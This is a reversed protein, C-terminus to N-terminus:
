PSAVRRTARRRERPAASEAGPPRAQARAALSPAAARVARPAPERAERRDAPRPARRAVGVGPAGRALWDAVRSFDAFRTVKGPAGLFATVVRRGGVEAGTIYCYGAPTTFGTKGGTVRFRHATLPRNTTHYDIRESRDKSVVTASATGMIERLVRDQLAVRLALALERATSVNGRLGSPDVFRTRKLGLERALRNMAAVLAPPDLGVARGLATPARNDSAMLMARLLDRNRFAERVDLRTRAGGRAAAADASSIATWGDLAIGRRRVVMAVFIKTTSAIPRVEDAAKGYIMGGTEADVVAMAKSRVEPLAPRAGSAAAPAGGIVLALALAAWAFRAHM